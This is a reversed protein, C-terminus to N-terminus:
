GGRSLAVADGRLALRLGEILIALVVVSVGGLFGVADVRVLRLVVWLAVGV